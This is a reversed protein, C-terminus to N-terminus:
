PKGEWEGYLTHTQGEKIRVPILMGPALPERYGFHVLKNTRTRGVWIHNERQSPGEVLVEHIRGVEDRNRSLSIANQLEILRELRNQKDADPVQGSIEAAPTGRRPSYAFTFASDYQVENVVALTAEFDQESEGPFGVIIDTTLSISPIQRRLEHVISLYHQSTYGRNMSKLVDDSGAQLPLHLHECVKAAGAMVEILRSSVDRPHSTQFRIRELDPVGNVAGLLDAFDTKDPLDKGYSNVNQGLLTVEKIGQRALEGVEALVASMRRSQERGRVYPVICYACFNNCGYMITVWAKLRSGRRAPLGEHPESENAIDYVPGGEEALRAMFEPLRHLNHTGFVLDVHPLSERIKVAEGPQQALCGCIGIIIGPKEKKLRKLSAVHGYLRTSANERVCCTNFLVLDAAEDSTARYGMNELIGAIVESDHENMQCGFTVLRYTKHSEAHM